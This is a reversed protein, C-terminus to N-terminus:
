YKKFIKLRGIKDLHNIVSRISIYNIERNLKIELKETIRRCRTNHPSYMLRYQDVVFSLIDEAYLYNKIKAADTHDM